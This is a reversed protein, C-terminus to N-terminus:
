CSGFHSGGFDQKDITFLNFWRTAKDKLGILFLAIFLKSVTTSGVSARRDANLLCADPTETIVIDSAVPFGAPKVAVEIVDRPAVGGRAVKLM